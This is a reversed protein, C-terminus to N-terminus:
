DKEYWTSYNEVQYWVWERWKQEIVSDSTNQEFEFEESVEQMTNPYITFVVKKKKKKNLLYKMIYSNKVSEIADGVSTGGTKHTDVDETSEGLFPIHWKGWGGNTRITGGIHMRKDNEIIYITSSEDCVSPHREVYFNLDKKIEEIKKDEKCRSCEQDPESLIHNNPCLNYTKGNHNFTNM